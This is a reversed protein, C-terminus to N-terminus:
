QINAIVPYVFGSFYNNFLFVIECFFLGDLIYAAEKPKISTM